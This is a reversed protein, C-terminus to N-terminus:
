KLVRAVSHEPDDGDVMVTHLHSVQRVMPQGELTHGVTDALNQILQRKLKEEMRCLGEEDTIPDPLRVVTDFPATYPQGDLEYAPPRVQIHGNIFYVYRVTETM